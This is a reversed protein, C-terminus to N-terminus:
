WIVALLLGVLKSAVPNGEPSLMLWDVPNILPMAVTEPALLTVILAELALPTPLEMNVSMKVLADTVAREGQASAMKDSSSNKTVRGNKLISFRL